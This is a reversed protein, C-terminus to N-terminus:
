DIEVSPDYQRKHSIDSGLFDIVSRFPRNQPRHTVICLKGERTFKYGVGGGCILVSQDFKLFEYPLGRPAQVSLIRPDYERTFTLGACEADNPNQPSQAEPPPAPYVNGFSYKGVEKGLM